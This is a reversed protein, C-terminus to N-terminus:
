KSTEQSHKELPLLSDTDEGSRAPISRLQADIMALVVSRRSVKERFSHWEIIQNLKDHYEADLLVRLELGGEDIIRQKRESATKARLSRSHLTDSNPM